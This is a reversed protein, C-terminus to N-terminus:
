ESEKRDFDDGYKARGADIWQALTMDNVSMALDPTVPQTTIGMLALAHLHEARERAPTM